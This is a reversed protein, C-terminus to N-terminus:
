FLLLLHRRDSLVTRHSDLHALKFLHLYVDVNVYMLLKLTLRPFGFHILCM